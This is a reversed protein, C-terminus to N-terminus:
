NFRSDSDLEPPNGNEAKQSSYGCATEKM